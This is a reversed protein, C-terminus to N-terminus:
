TVGDTGNWELDSRSQKNHVTEPLHDNAALRAAVSIIELDPLYPFLRNGSTTHVHAVSPKFKGTTLCHIPPFIAFVICNHGLM